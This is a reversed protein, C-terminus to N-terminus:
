LPIFQIHFVMIKFTDEAIYQNIQNHPIYKQRGYGPGYSGDYVRSRCGRTAQGILDIDAGFNGRSGVVGGVMAHRQSLATINIVAGPFPWMLQSDFEGSMMHFFVSMHSGKGEKLGNPYVSLCMKYGGLHTYFPQSMWQENHAKRVSFNDITFTVPPCIFNIVQPTSLAQVEALCVQCVDHLERTEEVKAALKATCRVRNADEDEKLKMLKGQLERLNAELSEITLELSALEEKQSRIIDNKQKVVEAHSSRLSSLAIDCEENMKINLRALLVLHHHIDKDSHVELAQRTLPHGAKCGIQEFSCEVHQFPCKTMHDELNRREIQECGCGNPCDILCFQCENLHCEGDQRRGSWLCGRRRHPCSVKLKDISRKLDSNEILRFVEERCFPCRRKGDGRVSEAQFHSDFCRKCACEGCCTILHPQVLVFCCIKCLIMENDKHAEAFEWEHRARESPQIQQLRDNLSEPRPHDNLSEPRRTSGPIYDQSAPSPMSTPQPRGSVEEHRMSFFPRDPDLLGVLESKKKPKEEM